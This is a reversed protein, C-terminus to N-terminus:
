NPPKPPNKISFLFVLVTEVEAVRGQDLVVIQEATQQLCCWCQDKLQWKDQIKQLAADYAM